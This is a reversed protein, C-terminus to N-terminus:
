QSKGPYVQFCYNDIASHTCRSTNGTWRDTVVYYTSNGHSVSYSTYRGQVAIGFGVLLGAVAIALAIDRLTPAGTDAHM